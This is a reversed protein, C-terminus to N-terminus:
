FTLTPGLSIGMGAAPATWRAVVLGVTNLSQLEPKLVPFFWDVGLAVGFIRTPSWRGDLRVRPAVWASTGHLSLPYDHGAAIVEGAAVGACGRFRLMDGVKGTACADLLGGVLGAEATGTGVRASSTGTVLAAARLDFGRVVALELAPSVGVTVKPLMEFLFLSQVTATVAPTERRRPPVEPSPPATAPPAALVIAPPAAPAPDPPEAVPPVPAPPAPAAPPSPPAPPPIGLSPLLTADIAAAIGLGLAAHIEECPVKKITLTREGLVAGDRRVVFRAGEPAETVEISIRRDVEGRQLWVSTQAAVRKATLCTSPGVHVADLVPQTAEDARAAPTQFVGLVALAGLIRCLAPGRRNAHLPRLPAAM